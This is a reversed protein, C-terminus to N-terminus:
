CEKNQYPSFPEVCQWISIKSPFTDLWYGIEKGKNKGTCASVSFVISVLLPLVLRNM